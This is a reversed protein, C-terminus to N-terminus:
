ALPPEAIADLSVKREVFMKYFRDAVMDPTLRSTKAVDSPTGAVVACVTLECAYVGLPEFEVSMTRVLRKQAVKGIMSGARGWQLAMRVMTDNDNALAGGTVLVAGKSAALNDIVIRVAAILGLTTANIDKVIDSLEGTLVSSKPAFASNWHLIHVTGLSLISTVARQVAELDFLDVPVAHAKIGDARLAAVAADLKTATRSLLVPEYGLAGFKRAVANSIGPGYGAIII